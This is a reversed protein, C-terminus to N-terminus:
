DRSRTRFIKSFNQIHNSMAAEEEKRILAAALQKSENLIEEYKELYWDIEFM